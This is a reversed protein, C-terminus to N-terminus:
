DSDDRDEMEDDSAESDPVEIPDETLKEEEGEDDGEVEDDEVEEDEEVDQQEDEIDADIEDESASVHEASDGVSRRAKKAPPSDDAGNMARSSGSEKKANKEDRVKKRYSNRKESQISV